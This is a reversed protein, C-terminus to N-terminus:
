DWHSHSFSDRHQLSHNRWSTASVTSNCNAEGSALRRNASENRPSIVRACCDVPCRVFKSVMSPDLPTRFHKRTPCADAYPELSSVASMEQPLILTIKLGDMSNKGSALSRMRASSSLRPM